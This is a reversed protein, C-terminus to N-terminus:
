VLLCLIEVYYSHYVFMIWYIEMVWIIFMLFLVWNACNVIMGDDESETETDVEDASFEYVKPKINLWKKM